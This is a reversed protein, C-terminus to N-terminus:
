ETPDPFISVLTDEVDVEYWVAIQASHFGIIARLEGLAIFFDTEGRDWIRHRSGFFMPADIEESQDLFKRCAARMSRISKALPSSRDLKELDSTLRSRIELISRVVYEPTEAEYPYFLARRDEFFVLLRKAVDREPLPPNWSIGGGIFPLEFGTIRNTIERFPIKM